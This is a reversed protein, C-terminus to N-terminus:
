RRRGGRGVIIPVTVVGRGFPAGWGYGAGWGWGWGPGWGSFWPDAFPYNLRSRRDGDVRTAIELPTPVREAGKEVGLTAEVPSEGENRLVFTDECLYGFTVHTMALASSRKLNAIQAAAPSAVAATAVGFVLVPM